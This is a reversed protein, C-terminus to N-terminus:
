AEPFTWTGASAPGAFDEKNLIDARVLIAAAFEDGFKQESFFRRFGFACADALYLLPDDEKQIFHVINRIRTVRMETHQTIYGLRQEEVTARVPGVNQPIERMVQPAVRLFRRMDPVDEAVVSGVENSQARDRIWKDARAICMSFAMMHDWQTATVGLAKLKEASVDHEHRRALGISIALGLKRPVAMVQKLLYLRDALTWVDDDRYKEDGWIQAAHFVFGERFKNPVGSIAEAIASEALMLQRDAHVIIAVVITIPENESTGAEDVYIFRVARDGWLLDGTLSLRVWPSALMM